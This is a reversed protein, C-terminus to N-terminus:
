GENGKMKEALGKLEGAFELAEDAPITIWGGMMPDGDDDYIEMYVQSFDNEYFEINYGGNSYKYIRGM